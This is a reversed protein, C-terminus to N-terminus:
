RNTTQTTFAAQYINDTSFTERDVTLSYRLRNVVEDTFSNNNQIASEKIAALLDHDVRISLSEKNRKM